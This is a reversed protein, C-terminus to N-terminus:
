LLKLILNELPIKRLGVNLKEKINMEALTKGTESEQFITEWGLVEDGRPLCLIGAIITYIVHISSIDLEKKDKPISCGVFFCTALLGRQWDVTDNIWNNVLPIWENTNVNLVKNYKDDLHNMWQFDLFTREIVVHTYVHQQIDDSVSFVNLDFLMNMIDICTQIVTQQKNKLQIEPIIATSLTYYTIDINGLESLISSIENHIGNSKSIFLIHIKNENEM